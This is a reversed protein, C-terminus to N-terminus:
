EATNETFHSQIAERLKVEKHNDSSITTFGISHDHREVFIRIKRDWEKMADKDYRQEAELFGNVWDERTFLESLDEETLGSAKDLVRTLRHLFFTKASTCIDALYRSTYTDTQAAIATLIASREEESSFLPIELERSVRNAHVELIGRRAQDDPLGFYILHAFREPQILQSSIREPHNTSALVYFGSARIGAMLNLLASNIAQEDKTVEEIDDLQLVVPRGTDKFVRSIRPIIKKKDTPAAIEQALQLPDIPVLFVGTDKQLFYEATLTKGTGPIGVQLVSGPYLGIGQSLDINALPEFLVREIRDLHEDLGYISNRDTRKLGLRNLDNYIEYLLESDDMMTGTGLIEGVQVAMKVVDTQYLNADRIEIKYVMSLQKGYPDVLDDKTFWEKPSKNSFYQAMGPDGLDKYVYLGEHGGSLPGTYGGMYWGLQSGVLRGQEQRNNQRTRESSPYGQTPIPKGQSDKRTHASQGYTLQVVQELLVLQEESLTPTEFRIILRPFEKESAHDWVFGSEMYRPQLGHNRQISGTTVLKLAAIAEPNDLKPETILPNREGLSPEKKEKLRDLLSLAVTEPLTAGVMAAPVDVGPGVPLQGYNTVRETM